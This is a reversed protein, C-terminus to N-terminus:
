YDAYNALQKAKELKDAKIYLRFAGETEHGTAAMIQNIPIGKLFQNTAFSRRGSHISILERKMFSGQKQEKDVKIKEAFLNNNEFFLKLEKNFFANSYKPLNMNYKKVIEVAQKYIIPVEVEQNTKSQSFTIYLLNEKFVFNEESLLYYDKFRIGTLCIFTFADRVREEHDNKCNTDVILQIENENLYVKIANENEKKFKIYKTNTHLGQQFAESMIVKLNKVQKGRTAPSLNLDDKLYAVFQDVFKKDVKDFAINKKRKSIIFNELHRLSNSYATITVKKFKPTIIKIHQKYFDLLGEAEKKKFDSNFRNHLYDKLDSHIYPQNNRNLDAVYAEIENQYEKLLQNDAAVSIGEGKIVKKINNWKDKTVSVGTYIRQQEGNITYQVVISTRRLIFNTKMGYIYLVNELQVRIHM